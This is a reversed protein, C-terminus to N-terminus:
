QSLVSCAHVTALLEERLHLLSDDWVENRDHEKWWEESRIMQSGADAAGSSRKFGLFYERSQTV